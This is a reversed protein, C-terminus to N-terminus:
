NNKESMKEISEIAKYNCYAKDTIPGWIYDVTVENPEGDIVVDKFGADILQQQTEGINRICGELETIYAQQAKIHREAVEDPRAQYSLWYGFWVSGAIM